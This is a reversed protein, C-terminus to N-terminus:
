SIQTDEDTLVVTVEINEIAYIPVLVVRAVLKAKEATPLKVIKYSKIGQGTVMKDLLPTVMSQFNLWLVDTNQEFLCKQCATWLTKKVDCVLNRINLFSSAVLNGNKSNDFTTRNGWICYGYPQVETIANINVKADREQYSDAIAATLKNTTYVYSIYPVQGRTVGAIALWDDNTKLSIALASLYAFSGPMLVRGIGNYKQINTNYETAKQCMYYYHPYVVAGYSGSTSLSGYNNLDYYLSGNIQDTAKLSRNPKCYPDALVFCDGRSECFTLLTQYSDLEGNVKDGTITANVVSGLYELFPFGGTTVYKFKFTGLDSLQPMDQANPSIYFLNNITTYIDVINQNEKLQGFPTSDNTYAVRDTIAYYYVPLGLNILETAMIHSKDYDGVQYLVGSAPLAHSNIIIGTENNTYTPKVAGGSSVTTGYVNMIDTQKFKYPTTGFRQYFSTISECLVPTNEEALYVPYDVKSWGVAQAVFENSSDLVISYTNDTTHTYIVTGETTISWETSVSTSAILQTEDLGLYVTDVGITVSLTDDNNHTFQTGDQQNTTSSIGYVGESYTVELYYNGQKIKGNDWVSPTDSSIPELTIVNDTTVVDGTSQTSSFEAYGSGYQYLEKTLTNYFFINDNLDADSIGFKPAGGEYAAIYKIDKYAEGVLATNRKRYITSQEDLFEGMLGPIFVANYNDGAFGATTLDQENIVIREFNAM